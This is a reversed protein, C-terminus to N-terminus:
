GAGGEPKAGGGGGEPKAEGAAGGAEKVADRLEVIRELLKAPPEYGKDRLQKEARELSALGREPDVYKLDLAAALTQDLDHMVGEPLERSVPKPAPAAKSVGASPAGPAEAGPLRPPEPPPASSASSAGPSAKTQREGQSILLAVIVGLIAVFAVMGGIGLWLTQPDIPRAPKSRPDLKSAARRAGKRGAPAARLQARTPTGLRKEVAATIKRVDENRLLKYKTLVAGILPRRGTEIERKDCFALAKQAAEQTLLGNAIAIKCFVLDEKRSM